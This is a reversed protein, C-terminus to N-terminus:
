GHSPIGHGGSILMLVIVLLAVIAVAIATTKAWRPIRGTSDSETM